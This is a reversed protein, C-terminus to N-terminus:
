KAGGKEAETPKCCDKFLKGSGCYCEEDDEPEEPHKFNAQADQYWAKLAVTDISPRVNIELDMDGDDEDGGQIGYEKIHAKNQFFAMTRHKLGNTTHGQKYVHITCPRPEAECKEQAKKINPFHPWSEVKEGGVLIITLHGHLSGTIDNFFQKSTKM